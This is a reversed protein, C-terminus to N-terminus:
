NHTYQLFTLFSTIYQRSPKGRLSYWHSKVDIVVGVLELLLHLLEEIADHLEEHLGLAHREQGGLLGSLQDDGEHHHVVEHVGVVLVAALGAFHHETIVPCGLREGVAHGALGSSPTHIEQLRTLTPGPTANQLPALGVVV